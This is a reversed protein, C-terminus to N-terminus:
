PAPCGIRESGIVVDDIWVEQAPMDQYQEWGIVLKDWVQPAEWPYEASMPVGNFGPGQCQTGFGVADIETMAQGDLWLFASNTTGDFEWEWCVWKGAEITQSPASVACDSDAGPDGEEPGGGRLLVEDGNMARERQAFNSMLTGFMGGEAYKAIEGPFGPVPGGAININWHEAGQPIETIWVMLRGYHKKPMLEENPTEKIIDAYRRMGQEVNLHLSQNGGRPKTSDVRVMGSYSYAIWDPSLDTAGDTYKEFDDCIIASPPCDGGGGASGGSGGAGGAGGGGAGASSGAAGASGSVGGGGSAGGGGTTGATGATGGAGAGVGGTGAAVSGAQGGHAQPSAGESCAFLACSLITPVIFSTRCM